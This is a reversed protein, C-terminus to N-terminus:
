RYLGPQVVSGPKIWLVENRDRGGDAHTSCEVRQWDPYLEADYLPCAYGSVVVMGKVQHLLEALERHDDDTMEHRYRGDEGRVSKPYPPDVYHLTTPSDYRQLVQLAPQNEIIVGRLRDIIQELAAPQKYWDIAPIQGARTHGSRFGTRHFVSDSGFGMASKVLTRRAQEVPDSTPLFAAEYERRAFPTLRVQEVLFRSETPSRLVRFLNVLEDYLDNWIEAHVRPKQLLVSAAGGYAETYVRHPAFHSIIWSAVKAKGGYYRMVPRSVKTM